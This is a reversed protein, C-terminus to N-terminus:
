AYFMFIDKWKILLAIIWEDSFALSNYVYM